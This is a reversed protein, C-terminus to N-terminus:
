QDRGRNEDAVAMFDASQGHFQVASVVFAEHKPREANKRWKIRTSIVQSDLQPRQILQIYDYLHNLQVHVPRCHDRERQRDRM